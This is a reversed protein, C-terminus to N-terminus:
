DHFTMDSLIITLNPNQTVPLSPRAYTPAHTPVGICVGSGVFSVVVTVKFYEEAIFGTEGAGVDM